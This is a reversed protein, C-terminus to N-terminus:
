RLTFGHGPEPKHESNQTCYESQHPKALAQIQDLAREHGSLELPGRYAQHQHHHGGAEDPTRNAGFAPETRLAGTKELRAFRVYALMNAGDFAGCVLRRRDVM